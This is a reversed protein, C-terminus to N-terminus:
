RGAPAERQAAQRLREAYGAEISLAREAARRHEIKWYNAACVLAIHEQKSLTVLVEAYPTARAEGGATSSYRLDPVDM